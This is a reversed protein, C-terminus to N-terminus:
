RDVTQHFSVVDKKPGILQPVTKVIESSSRNVGALKSVSEVSPPAIAAITDNVASLAGNTVTATSAAIGSSRQSAGHGTPTRNAATKWMRIAMVGGGFLALMKLTTHMTLNKKKAQEFVM